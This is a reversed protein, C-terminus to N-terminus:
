RALRREVRSLISRVAPDREARLAQAIAPGVRAAAEASASRELALAAWRRVLPDSDTFLVDLVPQQDRTTRTWQDLAARRAAPDPDAQLTRRLAAGEDDHAPALRSTPSSM